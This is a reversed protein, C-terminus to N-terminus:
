PGPWTPFWMHSPTASAHGSAITCCGRELTWIYKSLSFGFLREGATLKAVAAQVVPDSACLNGKKPPITSGNKPSSDLFPYIGPFYIDPSTPLGSSPARFDLASTTPSRLDFEIGPFNHRFIDPKHASCALMTYIEIRPAITASMAISTFPMIALLRHSMILKGNVPYLFFHYGYWWPSPRKWWPLKVKKSVKGEDDSAGENGNLEFLTEETGHRHPHVFEDLLESVEEGVPGNSLIVERAEPVYPSLSSTINETARPGGHSTKLSM